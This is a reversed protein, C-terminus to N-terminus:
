EPKSTWPGICAASVGFATASRIAWTGLPEVVAAEGRQHAAAAETHRTFFDVARAIVRIMRQSPTM